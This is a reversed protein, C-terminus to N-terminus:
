SKLISATRNREKLLQSVDNIRDLLNPDNNEASQKLLAISEALKHDILSLGPLSVPNSYHIEESLNKLAKRVQAGQQQEYLALIESEILLMHQVSSSDNASQRSVNSEASFLLFSVILYLGLWASQLAILVGASLDSFLMLVIGFVIFQVLFYVAIPLIGTYSFVVGSSSTKNALVIRQVFLCVFATLTFAYLIWSGSDMSKKSVLVIISYITAALAIAAGKWIKEPNRSM